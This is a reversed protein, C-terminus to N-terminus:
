FDDLRRSRGTWATGNNRACGVLNLQPVAGDVKKRNGWAAGIIAAVQTGHNGGSAFCDGPFDDPPTKVNRDSFAKDLVGVTVIKGHRGIAERFNWADAFHSRVLSDKGSFWDRGFAPNNPPPVTTANVPVNISATEVQAERKLEAIRAWLLSSEQEVGGDAPGNIVEVVFLSINAVGSLVRLRNRELVGEIEEPTATDRFLVLLTRSEVRLSEVPEPRLATATANAAEVDRRAKEM